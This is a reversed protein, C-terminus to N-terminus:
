PIVLIMPEELNDSILNDIIINTKGMRIWDSM